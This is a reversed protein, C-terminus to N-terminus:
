NIHQLLSALYPNEFVSLDLNLSQASIEGFVM